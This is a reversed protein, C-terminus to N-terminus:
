TLYKDEIKRTRIVKCPLGYAVVRSVIDKNVYSSAGIVSDDGVKIGHKIIAGISVATRFGIQIDGGTVVGPALSAFDKIDSNHDISVNSNIICFSGINSTTGINTKPMLITGEGIKCYLGVETSQHKLSPFCARPVALKVENMIKERLSNEGVAIFYNNDTYKEYCVEPSIVPVGKIAKIEKEVSVYAIVSYGVSLAVNTVSIAHGGTGFIILSKSM